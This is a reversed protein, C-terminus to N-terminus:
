SVSYQSITKTDFFTAKGVKNSVAKNVLLIKKFKNISINKEFLASTRKVPEFAFIQLNLNIKAVVLSYIGTNAGVDLIGNSKKSLEVWINM